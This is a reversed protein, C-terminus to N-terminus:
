LHFLSNCSLPLTPFRHPHSLLFALVSFCICFFRIKELPPTKAWLPRRKYYFQDPGSGCILGNEYQMGYQMIESGYAVTGLEGLFVKVLGYSRYSQELWKSRPSCGWRVKAGRELPAM